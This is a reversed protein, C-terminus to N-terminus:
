LGCGRWVSRFIKKKEKRGALRASIIRTEEGSNRKCFTIHIVRGKPSVSLLNFRKEEDTSHKADESVVAVTSWICEEAEEFSVDHKGLNKIMKILNGVMRM